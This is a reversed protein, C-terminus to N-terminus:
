IYTFSSSARPLHCYYEERQRLRVYHSQSSLAFGVSTKVNTPLFCECDMRGIDDPVLCWRVSSLTMNWVDDWSNRRVHSLELWTHHLNIYHPLIQLFARIFILQRWSVKCNGRPHFRQWGYSSISVTGTQSVGAFFLATAACMRWQSLAQENVWWPQIRPNFASDFVLFIRLLCISKLRSLIITHSRM